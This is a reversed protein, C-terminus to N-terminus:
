DCFFFDELQVCTKKKHKFLFIIEIIKNSKTNHFLCKLNYITSQHLTHISSVIKIWKFKKKKDAHLYFITVAQISYKGASKLYM